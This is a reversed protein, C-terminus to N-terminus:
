GRSRDFFFPNRMAFNERFAKVGQELVEATEESIDNSELRKILAAMRSVSEPEQKTEAEVQEVMIFVRFM